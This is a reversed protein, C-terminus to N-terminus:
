PHDGPLRRAARGPQREETSPGVKGPQGTAGALGSQAAQQQQKALELQAARKAAVTKDIQRILVEDRGALAPTAAVLLAGMLATLTLTKM